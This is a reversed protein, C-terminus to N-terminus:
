VPFDGSYQVMINVAKHVGPSEDYYRVTVSDGINMDNLGIQSNGKYIAVNPSVSLTVGNVAITSGVWDLSTITGEITQMAHSPSNDQCYGPVGLMALVALVTLIKKM